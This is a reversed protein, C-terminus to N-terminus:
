REYRQMKGDQTEMMANRDSYIPFDVTTPKKQKEQRRTEAVGCLADVIDDANLTPRFGGINRWTKYENFLRMASGYSGNRLEEIAAFIVANPDM